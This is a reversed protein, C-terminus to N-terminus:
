AEDRGIDLNVWAAGDEFIEKKWVPAQEKITDILWRAAEFAQARHPSSAAVLVSPEGIPVVGTRHVAVAGGLGYTRVAQKALEDLVAEARELWAEYELQQVRRGQSPSRTSGEFAVLGGCEPRRIRAVFAAVDIPEGTVATVVIPNM